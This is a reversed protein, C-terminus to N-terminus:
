SDKSAGRKERRPETGAWGAHVIGGEHELRRFEEMRHPICEGLGQRGETEDNELTEDGLGCGEREQLILASLQWALGTCLVPLKRLFISQVLRPQLAEHKNEKGPFVHNIVSM